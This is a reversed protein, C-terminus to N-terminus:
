TEQTDTHRTSQHRGSGKRPANVQKIQDLDPHGILAAPRNRGPGRLQSRTRQEESHSGQASTGKITKFSVTEQRQLPLSAKAPAWRAGREACLVQFAMGAGLSEWLFGQGRIRLFDTLPQHTGSPRGVFSPIRDLDGSSPYVLFVEAARFMLNQPKASVRAAKGAGRDRSPGPGRSAEGAGAGAPGDPRAGAEIRIM